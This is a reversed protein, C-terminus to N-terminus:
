GFGMLGYFLVALVLAVVALLVFLLFNNGTGVVQASDSEGFDWADDTLVQGSEDFADDLEDDDFEDDLEYDFEDDDFEDDYEDEGLLSNLVTMAPVVHHPLVRVDFLPSGTDVAMKPEVSEPDISELDTEEPDLEVITAAIRMQDLEDQIRLAEDESDVTVVTQLASADAQMYAPLAPPAAGALLEADCEPCVDIHDEYEAITGVADLFPCEPNPCHKM